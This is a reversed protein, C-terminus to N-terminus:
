DESSVDVMFIDKIELQEFKNLKIRAYSAQWFSLDNSQNKDLVIYYTGM